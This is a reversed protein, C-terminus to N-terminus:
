LINFSVDANVGEINWELKDRKEQANKEQAYNQMKEENKKELIKREEAIRQKEEREKRLKKFFYEPTPVYPDEDDALIM